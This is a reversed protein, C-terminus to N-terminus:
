SSLRRIIGNKEAYDWLLKQLLGRGRALRSRVTGIPVGTIEAIKQYSFEHIECLLIVERFEDPLANLAKSIEDGFIEGLKSEDFVRDSALPGMKAYLSFDEIQELPIQQPTNKQKRYANLFTNRLITFLWGKINSGREFQTFSRFAKLVTEQVLDEADSSNRTLSVAYRYLAGLHTLALAQFERLAPNEKEKLPSKKQEDM